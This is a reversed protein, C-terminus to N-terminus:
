RPQEKAAGSPSRPTADKPRRKGRIADAAEAQLNDYAMELAEHYSVGYEDDAKRSLKESTMYGKAIRRLTDYYVQENDSM